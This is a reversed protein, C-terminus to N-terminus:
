ELTYRVHRAHFYGQIRHPQRQRRHLFRRTERALHDASTARAAHVHHRLDANLIEDPNLEPSYGPMLHLEIRDANEQLWARVAKSRHVPHRDAIVHVKRGAQRALRDLFATFVKATFKGTFVTFWLSGRSAIASMINVRFRRGNVKVTPTQGAPAWSRGPPATDSRLQCQDAWAVVAHEANARAAVPPYEEDLWASVKEQQQRCSRRAPRQPTFGHRRLWTGVGQETMTSGTVMRILEAVLARTWLPGGILLQEPTYDAMAQFLVARDQAGILEGPGTRSKVPAALAERGAAQYKRWWTGVSRVSVGFVEAAQRYTQVQGSELAAVGM